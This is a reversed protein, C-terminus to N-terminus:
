LCQDMKCVLRLVELAIERQEEYNEKWFDNQADEYCKRANAIFYQSLDLASIFANLACSRIAEFDNGFRRPYKQLKWVTAWFDTASEDSVKKFEKELYEAIRTRAQLEISIKKYNM